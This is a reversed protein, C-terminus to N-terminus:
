KEKFTGTIVISLNYEFDKDCDQCKPNSCTFILTPPIHRPEYYSNKFLIEMVSDTNGCVMGCTQCVIKNKDKFVINKTWEPDDNYSM